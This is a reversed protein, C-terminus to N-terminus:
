ATRKKEAARDRREMDRALKDTKEAQEWVRLVMVLATYYGEHYAHLERTDFRATTRM